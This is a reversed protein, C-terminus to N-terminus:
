SFSAQFLFQELTNIKDTATIGQTARTAFLALRDGNRTGVRSRGGGTSYQEQWM